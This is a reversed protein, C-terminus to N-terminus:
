WWGNPHTKWEPGFLTRAEDMAKSKTFGWAYNQSSHGDILFAILDDKSTGVKYVDGSIHAVWM